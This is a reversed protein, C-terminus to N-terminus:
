DTVEISQGKAKLEIVETSGDSHRKSEAFTLQLESAGSSDL